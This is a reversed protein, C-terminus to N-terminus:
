TLNESINVEQLCSLTPENLQRTIGDSKKKQQHQQQGSKDLVLSVSGDGSGVLLENPKLELMAQVGKYLQCFM